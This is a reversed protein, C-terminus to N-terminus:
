KKERINWTHTRTYMFSLKKKRLFQLLLQMLRIFKTIEVAVKHSSQNYQNLKVYHIAYLISLTQNCRHQYKYPM